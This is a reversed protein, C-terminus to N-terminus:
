FYGEMYFAIQQTKNSINTALEMEPLLETTLTKLYRQFHWMTYLSNASLLLAIAILAGFAWYLKTRIKLDVFRM